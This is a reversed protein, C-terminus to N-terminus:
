EIAETEIGARQGVNPNPIQVQPSSPQPAIPTADQWGAQKLLQDGGAAAGPNQAAVGAAQQAAYAADTKDKIAMARAQEARADSYGADSKMKLMEAQLRMNEGKARELQLQQMLQQLQAQQQAQPNNQQAEYDEESLVVDRLDAANSKEELSKRWDIYAREEPQLTAGFQMLQQLRVEKAVLSSSGKAKFNFDGKIRNDPNFQMNWAYMASIFSETVDDFATVADKIAINAAGMLMSLGGKTGAAGATPNDGYLYKPLATIEDFDNDALQLIELLEGIHSDFNIARLAPYQADGTRRNWIRFPRLVDLPESADMQSSYVEVQPGACAAANDLVMRAASNITDQNDRGIKGIGDGLISTDDKRYYLLHHIWRVGEIPQPSIKIIEGQPLLWINCFIPKEGEVSEQGLAARVKEADLWGWREYVDYLGTNIDSTANLRDGLERLEYEFWMPKVYGTPLSSVHRKIRESDFNPNDALELLSHKSLRLLEWCARSDELHTVEMDPYWRWPSVRTVFPVKEEYTKRVWKVTRKGTSPKSLNMLKGLFSRTDPADEDQDELVYSSRVKKTVLPGKIIGTGYLAADFIIERAIHRYGCETLQDDITTVMEKAAASVMQHVAADIEDETPKKQTAAVLTNAIETRRAPPISPKPTPEGDWNREGSAPFLLDSLKACFTNVKIQTKKLYIKSRDAGIAELVDPDYIGHYQRLDQMMREETPQKARQFETFEGLLEAGLSDFKRSAVEQSRDVIDGYREIATDQM